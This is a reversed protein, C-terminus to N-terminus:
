NILRDFVISQRTDQALTFTFRNPPHVNFLTMIRRDIRTTGGGGRLLVRFHTIWKLDEQYNDVMPFGGGPTFQFQLFVLFWYTLVFLFIKLTFM